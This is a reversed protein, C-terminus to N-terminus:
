GARSSISLSPAAIASWPPFSWRGTAMVGLAGGVDARVRAVPDEGGGPVPVGAGGEVLPRPAVTEVIAVRHRGGVVRRRRGQFDGVDRHRRGRCDGVARRVRGRGGVAHHRRGRDGVVRRHLVRGGVVRRRAAVTETMETEAHGIGRRIMGVAEDVTVIMM